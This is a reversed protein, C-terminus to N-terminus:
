VNLNQRLNNWVKTTIELKVIRFALLYKILHSFSFSSSSNMYCDVTINININLDFNIDTQSYGGSFDGVMCFDILLNKSPIPPSYEM